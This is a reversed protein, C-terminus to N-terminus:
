STQPTVPAYSFFSNAPQGSTDAPRSSWAAPPINRAPLCPPCPPLPQRKSPMPRTGLVSGLLASPSGSPRFPPQGGGGWGWFRGPARPSLLTLVSSCSGKFRQPVRGICMGREIKLLLCSLCGPECAADQCPSQEAPRGGSRCSGHSGTGGEQLRPDHPNDSARRLRSCNVTGM